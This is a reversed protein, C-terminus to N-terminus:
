HHKMLEQLVSSLGDGPWVLLTPAIMSKKKAPQFLKQLQRKLLVLNAESVKEYPDINPQVVVINSTSHQINSTKNKTM